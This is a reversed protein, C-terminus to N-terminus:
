FRFPAVQSHSFIAWAMAGVVLVTALVVDVIHGLETDIM